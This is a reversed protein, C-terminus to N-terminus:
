SAAELVEVLAEVDLGVPNGKMSSSGLADRATGDREGVSLALRPLGLGDIWAELAGLPDREGFVAGIWAVVEVARPGDMRALNARLVPVLLRGCIAGHAAGTRGGLVGALGHVAGLGANALAIGGTLSVLAMDDFAGADPAEMVHHLASLGRPIADRCLADTMPNARSSLYPEIVQVVADLGSALRVPPPVAETLAPDVIALRPLMRDDRLSVKRAADPIGIVANRTAESGTGATTPIAVLPLPPADLPAGEGVVELHRM